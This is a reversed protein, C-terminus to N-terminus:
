KKVNNKSRGVGVRLINLSRWTPWDLEHGVPLLEAPEFELENNEKSFSLKWRERRVEEPHKNLLKITKLFCKRTKLRFNPTNQSHLLYRIDTEVKTRKWDATIEWRINTPSIGVLYYIKPLPTNKLCDTVLHCSENLINHTQEIHVSWVRESWV